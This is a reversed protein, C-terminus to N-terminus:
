KKSLPQQPVNEGEKNEEKKEEGEGEEKKEEGEEKKEEGEEKKEEEEVKNEEGEVKNEEGEEKKEEGEEKNEEGEEKNEEGEVKIPIEETETIIAKEIQNPEVPIFGGINDRKNKFVEPKILTFKIKKRLLELKALEDQAKKEAEEQKKKMENIYNEDQNEPDIEIKEVEPNKFYINSVVENFTDVLEENLCGLHILQHVSKSIYRRKDKVFEAFEGKREEPINEFDYKPSELYKLELVYQDNNIEKAINLLFEELFAKILEKTNLNSLQELSIVDNIVEQLVFVIEGLQGFCHISESKLTLEDIDSLPLTM